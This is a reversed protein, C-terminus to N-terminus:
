AAGAQRAMMADHAAQASELNRRAVERGKAVEEATWKGDREADHVVRLAEAAAGVSGVMAHGVEPGPGGTLRRSLAGTVIPNGCAAELAIVQMITPMDACTTTQLQSVRQHSVGLYAGAAEVGGVAKVLQHFLGKVFAPPVTESM